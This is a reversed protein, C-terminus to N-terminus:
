LQKRITQLHAIANAFNQPQYLDDAYLTRQLADHNIGTLEQLFELRQKDDVQALQPHQELLRTIIQQRLVALLQPHQQNRWLLMASAYIHEALSRRAIEEDVFVPGFRQSKAWLWLLLALLAALVGYPANRWIIAPLSPADQNILFWIRGNHNALRWLAYAHDHCDIRRNSWITTDSTITIGGDGIDFYLMHSTEDSDALDNETVTEDDSTEAANDHYIFPDRRTFDFRLPKEEDAFEVETPETDLNCRYYSESKEEKDKEDTSEENKEQGKEQEKKNNETKETSKNEKDEKKGFHDFLGKITEPAHDAAPTINFDRLLLDEERTHSGIFPNQTSTVLTGGNEVWEYLRDYRDQNLTKNANILIITDDQGLEINRWRHSDLLSLNKVTTAQVGHKRLFIEAALFDNQKAETTYGADIEKEEWRLNTLVWYVLGGIVVCTLLIFLIRQRPTFPTKSM